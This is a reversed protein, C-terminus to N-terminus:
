SRPRRCPQGSPPRRRWRRSTHRRPSRSRQWSSPPAPRDPPPRQRSSRPLTPRVLFSGPAFAGPKCRVHPRKLYNEDHCSVPSEDQVCPVRVTVRSLAPPSLGRKMSHVQLMEPVRQVTVRLRGDQLEQLIAHRDAHALQSLLFPLPVFTGRSKVNAEELRALIM